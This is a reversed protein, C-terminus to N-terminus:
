IYSVRKSIRASRNQGGIVRQLVALNMVYEDTVLLTCRVHRVSVRACASINTDRDRGRAGSGGVHDGANGGRHQIGGWDYADGPLDAALQDARICELLGVDGSDRQGDRLVVVQDRM